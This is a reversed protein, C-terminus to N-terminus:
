RRWWETVLAAYEDPREEWVFHGAGDVLDARGYPLRDALYTANVPPVVQDDRGAIVRVPTTIGPLLDALVPLWQQYSQAYPITDAFRDGAYGAIYDARVAPPPTYGSITDLAADVIAAGGIDRYPQLDTAFVWDQLPGTVTIPVAAGGSGVVVSAFRGPAAAAAFLAASTGIDPGVLHPHELGFEDAIRIIFDGLAKPNLLDERGESGGFGPPDVAVLHARGALEPWVQDFAYVTEPWPSLLIADVAAPGSEAYRIRVGDITTFRPIIGTEFTTM